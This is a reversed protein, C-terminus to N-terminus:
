IIVAENNITNITRVLYGCEKFLDSYERIEPLSNSGMVPKYVAEKGRTPRHALLIMFAFESYPTKAKANPTPTNM